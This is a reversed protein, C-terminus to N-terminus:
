PSRNGHGLGDDTRGGALYGYIELLQPSSRTDRDITINKDGILDLLVMVRMREALRALEKLVRELDSMPEDQGRSDSGGLTM